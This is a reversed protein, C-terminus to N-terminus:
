RGTQDSCDAVIQLNEEDGFTDLRNFFSATQFFEADREHLPIKERLGYELATDM